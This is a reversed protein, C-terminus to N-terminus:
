ASGPATDARWELRALRLVFGAGWVAAAAVAGAAPGTVLMVGAANAAALPVWPRRLMRRHNRGLRPGPGALVPVLYALSGLLVQGVGTVAAAGIWGGLPRMAGSSILSIGDAAAWAALWGCGALVQLFPLGGRLGKRGLRVVVGAAVVALAGAAALTAAGIVPPGGAPGAAMAATAAACVWWAARLEAGSVMRHHAFTPLITPLTGVITFGVLGVLNLHSHAM